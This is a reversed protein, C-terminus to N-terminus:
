FVVSVLLRLEFFNTDSSAFHSRHHRGTSCQLDLSVVLQLMFHILQTFRMLCVANRYRLILCASLFIGFIPLRFLFSFSFEGCFSLRLRTKARALCSLGEFLRIWKVCRLMAFSVFCLSFSSLQMSLM